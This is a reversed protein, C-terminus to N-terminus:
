TAVRCYAYLRKGKVDVKGEMIAALSENGGNYIENKIKLRWKILKKLRLVISREGNFM